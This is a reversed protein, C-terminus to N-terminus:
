ESLWETPILKTGERWEEVLHVGPLGGWVTEDAHGLVIAQWKGRAELAAESLTSFIQRVAQLDEDGLLSDPEEEDDFGASRIVTPRPFYVQSPQDFM